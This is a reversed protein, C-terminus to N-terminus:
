ADSYQVTSNHMHSLIENDRRGKKNSVERRRIGLHNRTDTLLVYLPFPNRKAEAM